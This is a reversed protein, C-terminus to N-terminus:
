DNVPIHPFFLILILAIWSFGLFAWLVLLSVVIFLLPLLWSGIDYWWKEEGWWKESIWYTAIVGSIIAPWIIFMFYNRM